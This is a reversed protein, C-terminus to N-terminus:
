HYTQTKKPSAYSLGEPGDEHANRPVADAKLGEDRLLGAHRRERFVTLYLWVEGAWEFVCDSAHNKDAPAAEPPM